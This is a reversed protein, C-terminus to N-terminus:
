PCKGEIEINFEGESGSPSTVRFAVIKTTNAPITISASISGKGPSAAAQTIQVKDACTESTDYTFVEIAPGKIGTDPFSDGDVTFLIPYATDKANTLFFYWLDGSYPTYVWKGPLPTEQDSSITVDGCSERSDDQITYKYPPPQGSNIYFANSCTTYNRDPTVTWNVTVQAKSSGVTYEYVYDGSATGTFDISDNYAVPASPGSSSIRAWTGGTQAGTLQDYLVITSPM